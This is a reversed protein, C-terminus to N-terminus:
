LAKLNVRLRDKGDKSIHTITMTWGHDDCYDRLARVAGSNMTWTGSLEPPGDIGIFELSFHHFQNKLLRVYGKANSGKPEVEILTFHYAKDAVYSLEPTSIDILDLLPSESIDKSGSTTVAIRNM